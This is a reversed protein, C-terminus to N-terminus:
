RGGFLSTFRFREKMGTKQSARGFSQQSQIRRGPSGYSPSVYSHDDDDLDDGYPNDGFRRQQAHNASMPRQAAAGMVSGSGPVTTPRPQQLAPSMLPPAGEGSMAREVDNYQRQYEDHKGKAENFRGEAEARRAQLAALEDDLRKIEDQERQMVGDYERVKAELPQLVCEM